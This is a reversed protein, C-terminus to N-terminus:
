CGRGVRQFIDLSGAIEVPARRGRHWVLGCAALRPRNDRRLRRAPGSHPTDPAHAPSPARMSQTEQHAILGGAKESNRRRNAVGRSAPTGKVQARASDANVEDGRLHYHHLTAQTGLNTAFRPWACSPTLAPHCEGSGPKTATLACCLNPMEGGFFAPAVPERRERLCTPRPVVSATLYLHLLRLSATKSLVPQRVSSSKQLLHNCRSHCCM